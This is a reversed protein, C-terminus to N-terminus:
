ARRRDDGPRRQEPRTLVSKAENVKSALYDSGGRDPHLRQILRRHAEQIEDPGAEPKIGLIARAEQGNMGTAAPRPPVEPRQRPPPEQFVQGRVHSLYVELAEASEADMQYCTTLLDLLERTPVEDLSKGEHTGALVEGNIRGSLHDITLLVYRTAVRSVHPGQYNSPPKLERLWMATAGAVASPMLIFNVVPIMGLAATAAGFSLALTRREGLRQRIERFKLGHNGMPYDAYEVTLIWATYLFWLVPGAVPVFLLVLFPIALLTAYLIKRLEDFLTPLLDALLRRLDGEQQIARGTLALEVKEALLNNFPSAILNAVIGFTYFVLVLMLLAFIPWLIWDLWGLWAPVKSDLLAMLGEFEHIGVYIAGTFVLINVLLPVVVFRRLGPRTILKMGQLLYGAGSLSNSLM